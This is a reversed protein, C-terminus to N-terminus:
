LKQISVVVGIGTLDFRQKNMFSELMIGACRLMERAGGM